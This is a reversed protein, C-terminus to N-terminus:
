VNVERSRSRGRIESPYGFAHEGAAATSKADSVPWKKDAATAHVWPEFPRMALMAVERTRAQTSM